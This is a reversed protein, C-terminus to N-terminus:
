DIIKIIKITTTQTIKAPNKKIQEHVNKHIDENNINKPIIINKPIKNLPNDKDKEIINFMVPKKCIDCRHPAEM